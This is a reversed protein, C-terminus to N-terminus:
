KAPRWMGLAVGYIRDYEGLLMPPYAPNDSYLMAQDGNNWKEVAM